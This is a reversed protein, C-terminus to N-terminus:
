WGIMPQLFMEYVTREWRSDGVRLCSWFLADREYVNRRNPRKGPSSTDPQFFLVAGVFPLLVWGANAEPVTSIRPDDRDGKGGKDGKDWKEGKDAKENKDWQIDKAHALVPLILSVAVIAFIKRLLFSSTEIM